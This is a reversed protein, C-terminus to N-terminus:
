AGGAAAALIDFELYYTYRTVLLNTRDLLLPRPKQLLGESIRIVKANSKGQTQIDSGLRSEQAREHEDVEEM